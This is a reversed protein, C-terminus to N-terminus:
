VKRVNIGPHHSSQPLQAPAVHAFCIGLHEPKFTTVVMQCLL